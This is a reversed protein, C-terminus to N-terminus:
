FYKCNKKKLYELIDRENELEELASEALKNVDLM